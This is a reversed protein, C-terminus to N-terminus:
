RAEATPNGTLECLESTLRALVEAKQTFSANTKLNLVALSIVNRATKEEDTEGPYTRRIALLTSQRTRNLALFQATVEKLSTRKELLENVLQTKFAMRNRNDEIEANMARDNRTSAELQSELAPMNWVDFGAAQAWKPAVLSMLVVTTAVGFLTAASPAGVRRNSTMYTKEEVRVVPSAIRVTSFAIAGAFGCPSGKLEVL